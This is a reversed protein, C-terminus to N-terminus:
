LFIAVPVVVETESLWLLIEAEELLIRKLFTPLQKGLPSPLRALTAAVLQLQTAPRCSLIAAGPKFAL